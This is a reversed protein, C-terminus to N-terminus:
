YFEITTMELRGNIECFNLSVISEKGNENLVVKKDYTITKCNLDKIKKEEKLIFFTEQGLADNVGLTFRDGTNLNSHIKNFEVTIKNEDILRYVSAIQSSLDKNYKSVAGRFKLNMKKDLAVIKNNDEKNVSVINSTTFGAGFVIAIAAAVGAYQFKFVSMFNFNFKNNQKFKRENKLSDVKKKIHNPIPVSKIENGLNFLIDGTKQYDKFLQNLKPDNDIAKQVEERENVPLTGDALQMIKIEDIM